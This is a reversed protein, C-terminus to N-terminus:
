SESYYPHLPGGPTKAASWLHVILVDYRLGRNDLDKEQRRVGDQDGPIEPFSPLQPSRRLILDRLALGLDVRHSLLHRDGLVLAFCLDPRRQCHDPLAGRKVDHVNAIARRQVQLEDFTPIL